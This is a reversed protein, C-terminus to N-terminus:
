VRFDVIRKIVLSGALVLATSLALLLHGTGTTWLPEVFTPNVATLGLLIVLPILSLIWRSLRGQATLTRGLQQLERRERVTAVVRELMESTGSGIERQVVALMAVQEVDRSKMRRGVRDLADELSAGLEVDTVARQFERRTPQPADELVMTLAAALSHGTRMAGAVMALHDALQDGFQKRVRDARMRVVLFVVLPTAWVVVLPLLPERLALAMFVATLLAAGASAGAVKTSSWAIDAVDVEEEFNQWWRRRSLLKGATSSVPREEVTTETSDQAETYRALRERPTIRRSSLLAFVAVAVMTAIALAALLVVLPSTWASAALLHVAPWATDEAGAPLAAPSPVAALSLVASM